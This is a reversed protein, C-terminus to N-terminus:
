VQAEGDRVVKGEGVEWFRTEKDRGKVLGWLDFPDLLTVVFPRGDKYGPGKVETVGDLALYTKTSQPLYKRPHRVNMLVHNLLMLTARGVRFVTRVALLFTSAYLTYLANLLNPNRLGARVCRRHFTGALLTFLFLVGLQMVLAAKLLARGMDQQAPTLSQNVSYAVGNGNLIEIVISIFAFTSIVRGPHIPSHYPAYYLIRGLVNYNALELLPPAAYILCTSVIYKILDGYDFAGAERIIFGVTFLLACFVYLGTLRWSKYHICNYTHLAGSMAFAVAFFVPAGKNPAYFYVSGQVYEGTEM